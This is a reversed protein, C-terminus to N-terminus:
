HLTALLARAERRQARNGEDIVEHLLDLALEPDGLDAVTRALEIRNANVEKKGPIHEELNM